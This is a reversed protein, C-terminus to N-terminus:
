AAFFPDYGENYCYGGQHINDSLANYWLATGDMGSLAIHGIGSKAIKYTDSAAIAEIQL